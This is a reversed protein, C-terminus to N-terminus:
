SLRGMASTWSSKWTWRRTMSSTSCRTAGSAFATMGWFPGPVPFDPPNRIEIAEDCLALPPMGDENFGRWWRRMIEVNEKSM